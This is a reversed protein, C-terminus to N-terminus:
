GKISQIEAFDFTDRDILNTMHECSLPIIELAYLSYFLNVNRDPRKILFFAGRMDISREQMRNIDKLIGEHCSRNEHRM